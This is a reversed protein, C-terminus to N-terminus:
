LERLIEILGILNTNIYTMPNEISYRVGAQAALHVVVDPEYKRFVEDLYHKDVISFEYFFWNNSNTQELNTIELLFLASLKRLPCFFARISHDLYHHYFLLKIAM